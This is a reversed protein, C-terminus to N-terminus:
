VNLDASGNLSMLIRLDLNKHRKFEETPYSYIITNENEIGDFEVYWALIKM